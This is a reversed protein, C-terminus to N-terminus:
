KYKDDQNARRMRMIKSIIDHLNTRFIFAIVCIMVIMAFFNIWQNCYCFILYSIFILAVIWLSKLNFIFNIKKYLIISRISVNVAFSIVISINAGDIGLWKILPFCLATNIVASVIMSWFIAKTDKIAYFVNGIFTSIASIIAVMLFLPVTNEAVIYDNKVLIPFVVKILPLMIVMGLLLVKAFLNCAKSYFAGSDKTDNAREFATDQWAYTFCPTLLAIVFSFKNGIAYVGNMSDGFYYNIIVRNFSTLMWYSISNICLPFSYKLMTKLMPTNVVGISIYKTTKTRLLLYLTQVIYGSIAAIYLSIYDLSFCLILVLNLGVNICTNIIGSIAFIKNFGYGRAAFTFINSINACLGYLIILWIYQVDAVASVILGALLYLISSCLFIFIGNSVFVSKGEQTKDDYMFRLIAVWIDFFFISTAITIYTLSLDYTGMDATPIHNTYLPLMFITIAKSLVSGILFIGSTKIFKILPNNQQNM